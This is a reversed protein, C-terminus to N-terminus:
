CKKPQYGFVEICENQISKPLFKFHEEVYCDPWSPDKINYYFNFWKSRQIAFSLISFVELKTDLQQYIEMFKKYSNHIMTDMLQFNHEVDKNIEQKHLHISDLWYKVNGIVQEFRIEEDLIQDYIPYPLYQEFTKFGAHKLYDLIGPYGAMIFPHNNIITVWTKETVIAQKFMQTESILRFLTDKYYTADFPFGDICLSEGSNFTPMINDPTYQHNSIFEEYEADSLECLLPRCKNKLNKDMFFSWISRHLLNHKDLKHLLRIRNTKDPKGTLFLFKNASHNWSTNIASSKYIYLEFYLILMDIDILYYNVGTADFNDIHNYYISEPFMWIIDCQPCNKTVSEVISLLNNVSM